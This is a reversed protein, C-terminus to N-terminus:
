WANLLICPPQGCYKAPPGFLGSSAATSELTTGAESEGSECDDVVILEARAEDLASAIFSMV